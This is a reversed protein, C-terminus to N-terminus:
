DSPTRTRPREFRALVHDGALLELTAGRIRYADVKRLAALYASELAAVGDPCAMMTTGSPSLSLASTTGGALTGFFRNCGTSGSIQKAPSDIALTPPTKPDIPTREDPLATLTWEGSLGVSAGLTSVQLKKGGFPEVPIAVKAPTGGLSAPQAVRTFFLVRKGSSILARLQYHGAPDLEAAPYSLTFSIPFRRGPAPFSTEAVRRAASHYGPESELWVRVLADAPLPAAAEAAKITGAIAPKGPEGSKGPTPTVALAAIAALALALTEMM